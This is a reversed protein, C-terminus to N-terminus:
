LYATFAGGIVNRFDIKVLNRAYYCKIRAQLMHMLGAHVNFFPTSWRICAWGAIGFGKSGKGGGVDFFGVDNPLM